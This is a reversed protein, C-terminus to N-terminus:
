ASRRASRMTRGDKPAVGAPTVRHRQEIQEIQEPTWRFKRGIQTRPWGYKKAWTMVTRESVCFHEALDAPTLLHESM